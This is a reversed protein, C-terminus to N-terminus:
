EKRIVISEKYSIYIPLLVQHQKGKYTYNYMEKVRTLTLFINVSHGKRM